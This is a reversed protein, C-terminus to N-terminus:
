AAEPEAFSAIVQKLLDALQEESSELPIEKMRGIDNLVTLTTIQDLSLGGDLAARADAHFRMVVQLMWYTKTLTSYQDAELYASQQLFDERLMRAVRLVLRESESLAEEGMLQVIELLEAERQLLTMAEQTLMADDVSDVPQAKKRLRPDPFELITLKAM